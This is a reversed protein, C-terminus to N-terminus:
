AGFRLEQLVGSSVYRISVNGTLCEYHGKWGHPTVDCVGTTATSSM